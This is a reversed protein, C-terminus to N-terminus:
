SEWILGAARVVVKHFDQKNKKTSVFLSQLECPMVVMSIGFPRRAWMEDCRPNKNKCLLPIHKLSGCDATGACRM